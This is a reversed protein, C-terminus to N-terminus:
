KTREKKRKKNKKREKKREVGIGDPDLKEITERNNKRKKQRVGLVVHFNWRCRALDEKEIRTASRSVRRQQNGNSNASLM